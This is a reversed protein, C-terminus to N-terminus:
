IVFVVSLGRIIECLTSLPIYQYSVLCNCGRDTVLQYDMM